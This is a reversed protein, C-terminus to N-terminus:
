KRSIINFYKYICIIKDIKASMFLNNDSYRSFVLQGNQLFCTKLSLTIISDAM